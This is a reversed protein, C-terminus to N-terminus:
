SIILSLKTYSSLDNNLKKFIISPLYSLGHIYKIRQKKHFDAPSM